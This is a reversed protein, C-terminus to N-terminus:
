LIQHTNGHPQPLSQQHHQHNDEDMENEITQKKERQENKAVYTLEKTKLNTENQKINMKEEKNVMAQAQRPGPM